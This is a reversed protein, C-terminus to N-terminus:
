AQYLSNCCSPFFIVTMGKSSHASDPTARTSSEHKDKSNSTDTETAQEKTHNTSEEDNKADSLKKCILDHLEPEHDMKTTTNAADTKASINM